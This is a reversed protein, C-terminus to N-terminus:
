QLGLSTNIADLVDENSFFVGALLMVIGFGVIGMPAGAAAFVIGVLEGAVSTLAISELKRLAGRFDGTELGKKVEAGLEVVDMGKNVWGFARSYAALQRAADGQDLSRFANAIAEKDAASLKNVATGQYKNFLALAEDVSRIKASRAQAALEQALRAAREGFKKTAAEFFETTATIADKMESASAVAQDADGKKQEASPVARTADDLATQANTVETQGNALNEQADQLAHEAKQAELGARLAEVRRGSGELDNLFPALEDSRAKLPRYTEERAAVEAELGPIAAEANGLRTQAQGVADHARSVEDAVARADEEAAAVANAALTEQTPASEVIGTVASDSKGDPKMFARDLLSNLIRTETTPTDRVLTSNDDTLLIGLMYGRGDEDIVLDAFPTSHVEIIKKGNITGQGSGSTNDRDGAHGNDGGGPKSGPDRGIVTMDGGDNFGSM